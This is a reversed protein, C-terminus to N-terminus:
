AVHTWAQRKVILSITRKTVGYRKALRHHGIRGTAYEARITRVLDDTLRSQGNAAGRPCRDPRRVAPPTLRGKSVADQSNDAKTGPFLHDPRVCPPNDCRHCIILGDPIPGNTLEWSVRHAQRNTGDSWCRGYGKSNRGGTWVWCEGSQDVHSWFREALPGRPVSITRGYCKHSCFRGYGAALSSLRAPFTEGCSLCDRPTTRHGPM